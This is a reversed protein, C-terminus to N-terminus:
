YMIAICVKVHECSTDCFGWDDKSQHNQVMCWGGNSFLEEPYCITGSKGSHDTPYRFEFKQADHIKKWDDDNTQDYDM